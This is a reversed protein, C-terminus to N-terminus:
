CIAPNGLRESERVKATTARLNNQHACAGFSVIGRSNTYSLVTIALRSHEPNDRTLIPINFGVRLAQFLVMYWSHRYWDIRVATLSPEYNRKLPLTSYNRAEPWELGSSLVGLLDSIDYSNPSKM